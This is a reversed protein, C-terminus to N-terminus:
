VVLRGHRIIAIPDFACPHLFCIDYDEFLIIYRVLQHTIFMPPSLLQRILRDIRFIDGNRLHIHHPFYVRNPNITIRSIIRNRQPHPQPQPQPQPKFYQYLIWVFTQQRNLMCLVTIYYRQFTNFGFM